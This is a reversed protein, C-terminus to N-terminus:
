LSVDGLDGQPIESSTAELAQLILPAQATVDGAGLTIILDGPQAIKAMAEPVEARHRIFRVDAGPDHSRVAEVLAEGNVGPIPAEGASYIDMFSVTDANDFACAFDALLAQTRTYRHPQFLVHVRTYGLESAAKLTAQIETPHHGYDDVVTIGAAQGIYDFRRRVGTYHSIADAAQQRDFGLVDLAAMVATANLMNHVGPSGELHIAYSTDDPFLVKFDHIGQPECRLQPQPGSRHQLLTNTDQLGYTCVNQARTATLEDLRLTKDWIVLTGQPTMKALFSGFAGIIEDLGAYHDLHDAEINTIIALTPDLWTFSGDSEDAEVVFFPGSGAKATSDYGDVVGGVLFTPDAGLRDLATALMASTTTKGHTGAVALTTYGQGLYALMRARPWIELGQAVAAEYEPNNHPVASSVVVVDIDPDAVNAADHGVSVEVGARLLARMYRSEKLDSGSVKIGRAHAVLAIGSM